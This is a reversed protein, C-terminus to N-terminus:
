VISAGCEPCVKGKEINTKTILCGCKKCKFVLQVNKLNAKIVKLSESVEQIKVNEGIKDIAM